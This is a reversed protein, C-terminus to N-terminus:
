RYSLLSGGLAVRVAAAAIGDVFRDRYAMMM